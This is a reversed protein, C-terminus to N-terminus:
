NNFINRLAQKNVDRNLQALHQTLKINKPCAQECNQSNGCSTIGGKGMLAELRTPADFKGLPHLNFLLTQVTPSPGIFDSQPGVNPCAELCCGCTMCHSIEYTTQATYPNQLPADPNDWSGDIEIWGHIRKLSEFM